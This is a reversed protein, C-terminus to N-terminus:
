DPMNKTEDMIETIIKREDVQLSKKVRIGSTAKLVVADVPHHFRLNQTSQRLYPVDDFITLLEEDIPQKWYDLTNNNADAPAIAPSADELDNLDVDAQINTSTSPSNPRFHTAIKEM